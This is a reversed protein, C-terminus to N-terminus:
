PTTVSVHDFTATNLVGGSASTVALGIELPSPVSGVNTGGFATWTGPIGNNDPASYGTFIAGVLAMKIWYPMAGTRGNGGDGGGDTYRCQTFVDNAGPTPYNPYMVTDFYFSMPDQTHRIMVGAKAYLYNTSESTIRAIITCNGSVTQYCFNFADPGGGIGGGYVGGGKVTFIGSNLGAIGANDTSGVDMDLWNNGKGASNGYTSVSTHSFTPILDDELFTGAVGAINDQLVTQYSGSDVRFAGNSPFYPPYVPTTSTNCNNATNGQFITGLIAPVGGDTFTTGNDSGISYESFYGETGPLSYPNGNQTFTAGLGNVTNGRVEAGLVSTGLNTSSDSEASNIGVFAPGAGNTDTVTNGIMQDNWVPVCTHNSGPSGNEFPQIMIGCDNTLTNGVIATDHGSCFYLQIGVRNNNLTNGAILWNECAWDTITYKSTSDPTVTWAAPVTLTNPSTSPVIPQWEGAGNGSVIAVIAISNFCTTLGRWDQPVTWHKSTDTLTTATATTVSGSDADTATNAAGEAAITEGDNHNGVPGGATDFLNNQIVLNKNFSTDFCRTNAVNQYLAYNCDRTFHNNEVIIDPNYSFSVAGGGSWHVTNGRFISNAGAGLWTDTYGGLMEFDCNEIALKTIRDMYLAAGNSAQVRVRQMFLESSTQGFNANINSAMFLNDTWQGTTDVNQLTLDVVGIDSVPNWGNGMSLGFNQAFTTSGPYQYGYKIITQNMGAGQLVVNTWLMLGLTKTPDFALKYTGAALYVVGGGANSAANLAAQIAPQDNNVGDGVAGYNQAYYINGANAVGSHAYLAAGWPTGLGWVDSAGTGYNRALLTEDAQTEAANPVVTGGGTYGNSVYVYYTDGAVLGAPATVNLVYATSGATTVTAALSANTAKDVFRVTPTVAPTQAYYLDRGFIRFPSSAAVEPTDYSMAHAQNVFVTSSWASGNYVQLTILTRISQGTKGSPFPIRATLANNGRTLPTIPKWFPSNDSYRVTPTAGFNDGQLFIIDGTVASKTHNLVTPASAQATNLASLSITFLTALASLSLTFVRKPALKPLRIM